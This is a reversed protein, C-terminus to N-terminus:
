AQATLPPSRPCPGSSAINTSISPLKPFYHDCRVGDIKTDIVKTGMMVDGM